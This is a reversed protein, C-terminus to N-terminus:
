RAHHQHWLELMTLVWVMVGYYDVHEGQHLTTLQDIFAGSLYGRKKLSGLSDLALERLPEHDRMWRGCPVGFGHKPKTLIEPPLFGESARKFFYRLHQGKLKLKPPVRNAFDILEHDLFPYRVDVGALACTGGVKRLDNDALTFKLDLYLLRHLVSSTPAERYRDRLLDLPEDPRITALFGEDFVHAAEM